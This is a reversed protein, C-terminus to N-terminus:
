RRGGLRETIARLGFRRVGGGSARTTPSAEARSAPLPERAPQWSGSTRYSAFVPLTRAIAREDETQEVALPLDDPDFPRETEPAVKPARGYSPAGYLKPLAVYPDVNAAVTM